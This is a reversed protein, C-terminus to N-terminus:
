VETQAAAIEALDRRKPFKIITADYRGIAALEEPSPIPIGDELLTSARVPVINTQSSTGVGVKNVYFFHKTLPGTKPDTAFSKLVNLYKPTVDWANLYLKHEDDMRAVNFASTPSARHGIDCLPCDVGVVELCNWPKRDVWHRRFNAFPEDDLFKILVQEQSLRLNQAYPSDAQAQAQAAAWGGLVKRTPRIDDEEVPEVFDSTVAAPRPKRVRPTIPTDDDEDYQFAM